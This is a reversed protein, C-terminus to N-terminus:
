MRSPLEMVFRTGWLLHSSEVYLHGGQAEILTRSMYLGLGSGDPRTTYDMEFIREWLRRHIGPGDDEISVLLMKRNEQGAQTIGIEV